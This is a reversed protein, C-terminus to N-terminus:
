KNLREDMKIEMMLVDKTYTKNGKEQQLLRECKIM